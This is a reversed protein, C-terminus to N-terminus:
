GLKISLNEHYVETDFKVFIESINVFELVIYM